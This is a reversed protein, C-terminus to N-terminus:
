TRAPREEGSKTPAYGLYTRIETVVVDLVGPDSTLRGTLLAGQV